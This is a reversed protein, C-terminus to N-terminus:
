PGLFLCLLRAAPCGGGVGGARCGAQLAAPPPTLSDQVTPPAVPLINITLVCIQSDAPSAASACAALLDCTLVLSTTGGLSSSSSGTGGGAGSVELAVEEDLVVQQLHTVVVRVAPPLAVSGACPGEAAVLQLQLPEGWTGIICTTCPRSTAGSQIPEALPPPSSGPVAISTSSPTPPPSARASNSFFSSIHQQLQQLPLEQQAQPGGDRCTAEVAVRLQGVGVAALAVQWAGQLLAPRGAWPTEAQRAAAPEAAAEVVEMMLLVCGPVTVLQTVLKQQQDM